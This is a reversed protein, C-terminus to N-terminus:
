SEFAREGLYARRVEPSEHVGETSGEYIVRGEAVVLVRDALAFLAKLVHEVLVIGIGEEKLSRILGIFEQTSAPNLGAFVEDLLLVKPKLSLARALELRKRQGLSLQTGKRDRLHELGVRKLLKNRDEKELRFLHEEVTLDAFPRPIQFTRGIGSLAIRHAPLRTIDKGELFIRGGDPKAYGSILDILTTKGSGNPGIIGLLDGAKLSFSVGQLVRNKGFSKELGEVRLVEM